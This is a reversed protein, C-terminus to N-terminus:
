RFQQKCEVVVVTNDSYAAGDLEVAFTGKSLKKFCFRKAGADMVACLAQPADTTCTVYTRGKGCGHCCPHVPFNCPV